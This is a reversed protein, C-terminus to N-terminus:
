CLECTQACHEHMFEASSECFKRWGPCRDAYAPNDSCDTRHSTKASVTTTTGKPKSLDLECFGCSRRCRVWMFYRSSECYGKDSWESCHLDYITSDKCQTPSFTPRSTPGDTPYRTPPDSPSLTPETTPWSTPNATPGVTPKYTPNMTPEVTPKYTTPKWTPSMTPENTPDTTAIPVCISAPDAVDMDGSGIAQVTDSNQFNQISSNLAKCELGDDCSVALTGGCQEGKGAPNLPQGTFTCRRGFNGTGERVYGRPCESHCTGEHLVKANKCMICNTIVGEFVACKYCGRLTCSSGKVFPYSTSTSTTVSSTVPLQTVTPSVTPGITPATTPTTTPVATPGITPAVTPEVTTPTEGM